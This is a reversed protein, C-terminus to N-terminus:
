EVRSSIQFTPIKNQDVSEEKWTSKLEVFDQLVDLRSLLLSLKLSSTLGKKKEERRSLFLFGVLKTGREGEREEEPARTPVL